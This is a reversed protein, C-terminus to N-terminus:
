QTAVPQHKGLLELAAATMATVGTKITPEPEPAYRASHLPELRAGTRQHEAFAVPNVAGIWLYCLPVKEATRGFEGFDETTMQPSVPRLADHGLWRTLAERLRRTLAPDNYVAHSPAESTDVIPFLEEPLGAAIAEGRCIRRIAETTRARVEDSYSRVTVQLVVEDPVISAKTGGHISGVTVVCPDTPRTERSVITQLALVIRAALVVPDNTQHPNAGHGGRGRVRIGFFDANAYLYGELLGISGAPLQEDNHLALAIDPKPFQEYLGAALMQQAGVGLEEAPQGILVLTGSWRERLAALLRATGVLCTLHIDHGCAHMVPVERGTDDTMRVKSAYPLGTQEEVPLADMDARILVTPGGGNQLVAVVGYGGFRETVDFGAARLEAALRAATKEEMLSLEPNAHFHKYLADLAPYEVGLKQAVVDKLPPAAAFLASSLTALRTHL